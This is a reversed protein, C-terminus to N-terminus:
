SSQYSTMIWLYLGSKVVRSMSMEISRTQGSDLATTNRTWGKEIGDISPFFAIRKLLSSIMAMLSTQSRAWPRRM